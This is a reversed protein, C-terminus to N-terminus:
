LDNESQENDTMDWCALRRRLFDGYNLRSDIQEKMLCQMNISLSSFKESLTFKVLKSTRESLENLEDVVRQKVEDM